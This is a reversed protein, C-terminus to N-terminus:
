TAVNEKESCRILNTSDSEAENPDIFDVLKNQFIAFLTFLIGMAALPGIYGFFHGFFAGFLLGGMNGFEASFELIGVV